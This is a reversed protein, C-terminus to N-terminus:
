GYRDGMLQASSCILDIRNQWERKEDPDTFEYDLRLALARLDNLDDGTVILLDDPDNKHAQAIGSKLVERTKTPIMIEGQTGSPTGRRPDAM